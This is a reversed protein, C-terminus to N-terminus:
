NMLVQKQKNKWGAETRYETFYVVIDAESKFKTFYIKKKADAAIDSFFWIGDNGRVETRVKAKYVFLDAEGRHEAVFVKVQADNLHDTSWVVQAGARETACLSCLVLLLIIIKNRTLM